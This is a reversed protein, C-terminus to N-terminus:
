LRQADRAAPSVGRARAASGEYDARPECIEGNQEDGKCLRTRVDGGPSLGRRIPLSLQHDARDFITKGVETDTGTIFIIKGPRQPTRSKM